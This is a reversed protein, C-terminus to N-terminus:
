GALLLRSFSSLPKVQNSFRIICILSHLKVARKLLEFCQSLISSADPEMETHQSLQTEPKHKVEDSLV